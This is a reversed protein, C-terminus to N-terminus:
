VGPPASNNGRITFFYRAKASQPVLPTQSCHSQCFCASHGCTRFNARRFTSFYGEGQKKYTNCKFPKASFTLRKNASSAPHSMFIAALPSLCHHATGFPNPCTPPYHDTPPFVPSSSHLSSLGKRGPRSRRDLSPHDLSPIFTRPRCKIYVRSFLM